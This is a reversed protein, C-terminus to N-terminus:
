RFSGDGVANSKVTMRVSERTELQEDTVNARWMHDVCIEQTEDNSYNFTAFENCRGRTGGKKRLSVINASVVRSSGPLAAGVVQLVEHVMFGIFAGMFLGALVGVLGGSIPGLEIPEARKFTLQGKPNKWTWLWVPITILVTVVAPIGWAAWWQTYVDTAPNALAFVLGGCLAGIFLFQYRKGIEAQGSAAPADAQNVDLEAGGM